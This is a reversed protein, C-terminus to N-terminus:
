EGKPPEPLPMWYLPECDCDAFWGDDTWASWFSLDEDKEFWYGVAMNGTDFYMLVSEEREPLREKVSFWQRQEQERLAALAIKAMEKREVYLRNSENPRTGFGSDLVAQAATLQKEFRKIAEARDM